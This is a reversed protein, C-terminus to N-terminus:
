SIAGALRPALSAAEEMADDADTDAGYLEEHRAKAHKIETLVGKWFFAFARKENREATLPYGTAGELLALTRYMDAYLSRNLSDFPRFTLNREIFEGLIAPTKQTFDCESVNVKAAALGAKYGAYRVLTEVHRAVIQPRRVPVRAPDIGVLELIRKVEANAVM